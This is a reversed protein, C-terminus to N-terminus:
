DGSLGFEETLIRSIIDAINILTVTDKNLESQELPEPSDLMLVGITKNNEDTIPVCLISQTNQVIQYKHKNMSWKNRIQRATMESRDEYYLTGTRWVYGVMGHSRGFRAHQIFDEDAEESSLMIFLEDSIRDGWFIMARVEILLPPLLRATFLLSELAIYRRYSLLKTDELLRGLVLAFEQALAILDDQYTEWEERTWERHSDISLIGAMENNGPDIVPVSIIIGIARTLEIQKDDMGWKQKMVAAPTESPFHVRAANPTATDEEVAAWVEGAIGMGRPFRWKLEIEQFTDTAVGIYLDDKMFDRWLLAARAKPETEVRLDIREADGAAPRVVKSGSAREEIVLLLDAAADVISLVTLMTEYDPPNVPFADLPTEPPPTDAAPAAGSSEDPEPIVPPPETAAASPDLSIGRENLLQELQDALRHIEEMKGRRADVYQKEHYGLSLVNKPEGHLLIHYLEPEKGAEEAYAIEAQVWKSARTYISALVIVFISEDIATTIAERWTENFQIREDFWVIFGREKFYDAIQRMKEVDSRSYSIFIHYKSM